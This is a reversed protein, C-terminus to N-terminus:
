SFISSILNMEDSFDHWISIERVSRERKERKERKERVSREISGRKEFGGRSEVRAAVMGVSINSFKPRFASKIDSM